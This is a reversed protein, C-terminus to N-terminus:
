VWIRVLPDFIKRDEYRPAGKARRPSACAGLPLRLTRDTLRGAHISLPGAPIPRPTFDKENLQISNMIGSAM